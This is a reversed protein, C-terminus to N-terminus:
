NTWKNTQKQIAITLGQLIEKEIRGGQGGINNVFVGKMSDVHARIVAKDGELLEKNNELKEIFRCLSNGILTLLPYGFTGGQGKLEHSILFIKQLNGQLVGSDAELVLTELKEIEKVAIDVFEDSMDEIIKEAKQIIKPDIFGPGNGIKAKLSNIPKIVQYETKGRGESM